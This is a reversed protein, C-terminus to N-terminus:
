RGNVIFILNKNNNKELKNSLKNSLENNLLLSLYPCLNIWPLLFMFKILYLNYYKTFGTLGYEMFVGLPPCVITGIIVNFPIKGDPKAYCKKGNCKNNEDFYLQKM